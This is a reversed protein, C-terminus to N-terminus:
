LGKQGIDSRYQVGEWSIMKVAAYAKDIAEKLHDGRATVGLVRGGYTEIHGEEKKTGAHFVFVDKLKSVEKLGKIVKGNEISGPYGKAAMVVCVAPKSDFKIEFHALNEDICAQILDALDSEMRFLIAQCEP